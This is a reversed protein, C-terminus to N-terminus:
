EGGGGVSLEPKLQRFLERSRLPREGLHRALLARLLQKAERRQQEDDFREGALALLSAGHVPIGDETDQASAMPGREPLYRYLTQPRIPEGHLAERELLLGYGIEKLLQKEFVRLAAEPDAGTRLRVLCGSYAEFLREHPDHRHLLRVLLENLYYGCFLNRGDLMPLAAETEAGTLVALEGRGTWGLLLPQFPILVARLGAAPRRAGKAILGLRGHNRSFVELLLSSERYANARLVFASQQQVRV